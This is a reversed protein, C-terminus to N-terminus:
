QPFVCMHPCMYLRVITVLLEAVASIACSESTAAWLRLKYYLRYTCHVVYVAM